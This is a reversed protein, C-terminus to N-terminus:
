EETRGSRRTHSGEAAHEGRGSCEHKRLSKKVEGDVSERVPRLSVM